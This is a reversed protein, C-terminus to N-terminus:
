GGDAAPAVKGKRGDKGLGQRAYKAKRREKMIAAEKGLETAVHSRLTPAM